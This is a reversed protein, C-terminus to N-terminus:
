SAAATAHKQYEHSAMRVLPVGHEEARNFVLMTCPKGKLWEYSRGHAENRHLYRVGPIADLLTGRDYKGLLAKVVSLERALTTGRPPEPGLWLHERMALVFEGYKEQAKVFGAPVARQESERDEPEQYQSDTTATERSGPLRRAAVRTTAERSGGVDQPAGSAAVGSITYEVVYRNVKGSRKGSRVTVWGTEILVRLRDKVTTLGCGARTAIKRQSPFAGSNKGYDCFSRLAVYVGLAALDIREDDLLEHPVMVFPPREAELTHRPSDEAPDPMMGGNLSTHTRLCALM